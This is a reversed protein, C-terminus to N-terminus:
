TLVGLKEPASLVFFYTADGNKCKPEYAETVDGAEGYIDRLVHQM